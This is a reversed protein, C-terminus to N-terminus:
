TCKFARVAVCQLVNCCVAVSHWKVPDTFLGLQLQELGQRVMKFGYEYWYESTSSGWGMKM